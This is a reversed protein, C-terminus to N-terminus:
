KLYYKLYYSIHVSDKQKVYKAELFELWLKEFLISTLNLRVERDENACM